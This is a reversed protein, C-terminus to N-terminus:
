DDEFTVPLFGSRSRLRGVDDSGTNIQDHSGGEVLERENIKSRLGPFDRITIESYRDDREDSM